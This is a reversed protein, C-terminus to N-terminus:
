APLALRHEMDAKVAVMVEHLPTAPKGTILEVHHSLVAHFLEDWAVYNEVLEESGFCVPPDSARPDGIRPAGWEDFKAYMGQASLPIYEIPRNYLEAFRRALEQFSILEPGTIEYAVGDHGKPALLITAACLAIDARTVPSFLGREGVHYWKGTRLAAEAMMTMFESYAQNRLCTFGLGSERLDKETVVHDTCSPTRNLPHVGSVSTYVIHKVGARQAAAIANRHQSVRHRIDLGSIMMLTEAGAYAADLSDPDRYDGQVVRAGKAAWDSLAEPTRSVLTLTEPSVSQALNEVIIRGLQGSAGNIVIRSMEREM